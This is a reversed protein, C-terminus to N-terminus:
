GMAARLRALEVPKPLCASAGMQRAIELYLSPGVRGGASVAIIRVHPWGKRIEGILEVGDKEPMVIDVVVTDVPQTALVGRVQRSDDIEITDFGMAELDLALKARVLEDDDVICVLRTMKAEAYLLAQEVM